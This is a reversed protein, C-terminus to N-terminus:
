SSEILKNDLKVSWLSTLVRAPAREEECRGEGTPRDAPLHGQFIRVPETSSLLGPFWQGERVKSKWLDQTRNHVTM